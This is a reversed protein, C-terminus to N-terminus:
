RVLVEKTSALIMLNTNRAGERFNVKAYSYM